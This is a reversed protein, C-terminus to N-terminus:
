REGRDILYSGIALQDVSRAIFSRLADEPTCVIPEEHANFSTNVLL